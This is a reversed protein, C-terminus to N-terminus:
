PKNISKLFTINSPTYWWINLLDNQVLINALNFVLLTSELKMSFKKM